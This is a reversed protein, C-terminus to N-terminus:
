SLSVGSSRSFCFLSIAILQIRRLTKEGGTIRLMLETGTDGGLTKLMWDCTTNPCAPLLAAVNGMRRLPTLTLTHCDQLSQICM